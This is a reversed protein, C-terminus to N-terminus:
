SHSYSVSRKQITSHSFLSSYSISFVSTIEFNQSYKTASKDWYLDLFYRQFHFFKKIISNYLILVRFLTIEIAAAVLIIEKIAIIIQDMQKM